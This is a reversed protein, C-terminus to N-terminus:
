DPLYRKSSVKRNDMKLVLLEANYRGDNPDLIYCMEYRGDYGGVPRKYSGNEPFHKVLLDNVETDSMGIQISYYFGIFTKRPSINVFPLITLLAFSFLIFIRILNLRVIWLLYMALSLAVVVLVLYFRLHLSAAFEVDLAFIFGLWLLFITLWVKAYRRM